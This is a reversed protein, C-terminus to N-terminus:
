KLDRIEGNPPSVPSCIDNETGRVLERLIALDYSLSLLAKSAKLGSVGARGPLQRSGASPCVSLLM